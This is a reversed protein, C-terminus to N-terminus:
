ESENIEPLNEKKLVFVEELANFNVAPQIGIKKFLDQEDDKTYNVVGIKLQAPYIQSLGSTVVVEGIEVSINKPVFNLDLADGGKWSVTGTERSNQLRASTFANHDKLLQVVSQSATTSIVKGVLGDTNIVAMNVAISDQEGTDLIVSNIGPETSGGIVKAAIYKYGSPPKLALMKRLRSNELVMERLQQNTIHLYFNEEKLFENQRALNGRTAINEKISNVFEAAHLMVWRIGRLSSTDSFSMLVGSLFIYLLLLLFSKNLFTLYRPLRM